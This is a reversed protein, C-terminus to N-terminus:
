KFSIESGSMLDCLYDEHWEVFMFTDSETSNPSRHGVIKFVKIVCIQDRLIVIILEDSVADHKFNLNFQPIFQMLCRLLNNDFM